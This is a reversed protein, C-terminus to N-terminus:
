LKVNCARTKIVNSVNSGAMMKDIVANVRMTMTSPTKRWAM